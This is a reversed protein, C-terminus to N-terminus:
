ERRTEPEPWQLDGVIFLGAYIDTALPVILDHVRSGGNVDGKV